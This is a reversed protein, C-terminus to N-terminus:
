RGPRSGRDHGINSVLVAVITVLYLQGGVAETIALMKGLSNSPSLDGYGLTAMTVFSFYVYNVPNPAPHQAFFHGGLMGDFGAYLLTFFFGALLYLCIAGSITAGTVREQQLLRRVIVGPALLVLMAAILGIGWSAAANWLTLALSSLLALLVTATVLVMTTPRARSTALIFLLTVGEITLAIIRGWPNLPTLAYALISLILL